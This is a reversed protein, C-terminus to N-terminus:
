LRFADFATYSQSVGKKKVKRLRTGGKISQVIIEVSSPTLGFSTPTIYIFLNYYFLPQTSPPTEEKILVDSIRVLPVSLQVSMVFIFLPM